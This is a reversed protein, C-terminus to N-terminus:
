GVNRYRLEITRKSTYVVIDAKTGAQYDADRLIYALPVNKELLQIIIPIEPASGIVRLRYGAAMAIQQVLPQIPGTWDISTMYNMGFNAPNPLSKQYDPNESKRIGELTQLSHDVQVSAEALKVGAIDPIPPEPPQYDHICGTLLLCALLALIKKM